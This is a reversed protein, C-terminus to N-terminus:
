RQVTTVHVLCNGCKKPCIGSEPTLEHSAAGSYIRTSGGNVVRLNYPVSGDENGNPKCYLVYVDFNGKPISPRDKWVINEVPRATVDRSDANRDVDLRGGCAERNDFFLMEGGPCRVFLDLDVQNEWTLTFQLDGSDANAEALRRQMDESVAAPPAPQAAAERACETQRQVARMELEGVAQRLDPILSRLAAQRAEACYNLSPGIGGPLGVGCSRWLLWAILAVAVALLPILLWRWDFGAGAPPPDARRPAAPPDAPPPDASRATAASQPVSTAAIPPPSPTAKPAIEAFARPEEGYGQHAESRYGWMVLLPARAIAGAEAVERVYLCDPGPYQLANRLDISLAKDEPRRSEALRDALGRIESTLEDLEAKVAAQVAPDSVDSLPYVRVRGETHWDVSRDAASGIPEAFLAAHRPGLRAQLLPVIAGYLVLPSEGLPRLGSLVTHAVLTTYMPM